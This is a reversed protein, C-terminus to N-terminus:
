DENDYDYLAPDVDILVPELEGNQIPKGEWDRDSAIYQMKRNPAVCAFAAAVSMMKTGGTIDVLIHEPKIKAKRYIQEIITMLGKYDWSAVNNQADHVSLQYDPYKITLYKTLLRAADESGKIEVDNVLTVTKSAILWIVKLTKQQIHYDIAAIIPDLNSPSLGITKFLEIDPFESSLIKKINSQLKERNVSTSDTSFPSLLLILGEAPQPNEKVISLSFNEIQKRTYHYEALYIYAFLGVFLAISIAPHFELQNSLINILIALSVYAIFQGKSRPQTFPQLTAKQKIQQM